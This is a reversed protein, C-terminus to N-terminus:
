SESDALRALYDPLARDFDPFYRRVVGIDFAALISEKPERDLLFEMTARVICEPALGSFKAAEGTAVAVRHRTETAGERLTVDFTAADGPM